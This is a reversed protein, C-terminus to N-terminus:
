IDYVYLTVHSVNLASHKVNELYLIMTFSQIVETSNSKCALYIQLIFPPFLKIAQIFILVMEYYIQYFQKLYILIDDNFNLECKHPFHITLIRMFLKNTRCGPRLGYALINALSSQIDFQVWKDALNSLSNILDM